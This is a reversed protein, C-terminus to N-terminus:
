DEIRDFAKELDIFCFYAPMNYALTKETIQRVTFIADACSHERRFGQKEDCVLIIETLKQSILKTTVDL